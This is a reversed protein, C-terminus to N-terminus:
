NKELYIWRPLIKSLSQVLRCALWGKDNKSVRCASLMLVTFLICSRIWTHYNINSSNRHHATWATKRRAREMENLNLIYLFTTFDVTAFVCAYVCVKRPTKRTPLAASSECSALYVEFSAFRICIFKLTQALLPRCQIDLKQRETSTRHHACECVCVATKISIKQEQSHHMFSYYARFASGCVSVGSLFIFCSLTILWAGGCKAFPHSYTHTHM